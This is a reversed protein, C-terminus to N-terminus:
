TQQCAKGAKLNAPMSQWTKSKGTPKAPKKRERVPKPTGACAKTNWCLSQRSERERAPMAPKALKQTRKCAEGVKANAHLSQQSKHKCAAKAPMLAKALTQMHGQGANTVARPKALM